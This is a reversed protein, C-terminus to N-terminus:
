LDGQQPRLVIDEVVAAPSMAWASWVAQAVDSAQMLRDAPFDAGKWSDSWTAGPLVATVKIGKDKLEERLNKSFGLLAFKSISYSGGNPYAHLSAISCMNFIHGRKQQLFIPLLARTLHYASYLNTEMMWELNGEAEDHVAGPAFVGANNVLVDIQSWHSRVFAAFDLVDQKKRFDAVKVLVKVGHAKELERQMADLDAQTRACVALDFGQGAFHEAVARGIGKTAGTIIINM